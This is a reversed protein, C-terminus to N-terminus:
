WFNTCHNGSTSRDKWSGTCEWWRISPYIYLMALKVTCDFVESKKLITNLGVVVEQGTLLTFSWHEESRRALQCPMSNINVLLEISIAFELYILALSYHKLVSCVVDVWVFESLVSLCEWTIFISRLNYWIQRWSIVEYIQVMPLIPHLTIGGLVSYPPDQVESVTFLVSNWSSNCIYAFCLVGCHKREIYVMAKYLAGPLKGFLWLSALM